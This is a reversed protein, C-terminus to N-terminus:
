VSKFRSEYLALIKDVSLARPSPLNALPFWGTEAIEFNDSHIEKSAVEAVFCEVTVKKYEYDTFYSGIDNLESVTVDLEEAIERRAGDELSEDTKVGGGPITWLRHGYNHQVLLIEDGHKLIVKVGRSEPRTVFWWVRLIQHVLNIYIRKLKKM